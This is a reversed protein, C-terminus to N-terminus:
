YKKPMNEILKSNTQYNEQIYNNLPGFGSIKEINAKYYDAIGMLKNVDEPNDLLNLALGKLGFRGTRGVRHLYCDHDIVLRDTVPDKKMPIDANIVLGVNQNDIGRSLLSTTILVKLEGKLFLRLAKDREAEDLGSFIIYAKTGQNNLEEHAAQAFKKTNAFIIIQTEIKLKDLLKILFDVKKDRDTEVYCQKVTTLTLKEHAIERKELEKKLVTSFFTNIFNNLETNFTASIFLIQAKLNINKLAMEIVQPGNQSAFIDDAEDIAIFKVEKLAVVLKVRVEKGNQGAFKLTSGGKLLNFLTGPTTILVHGGKQISSYDGAKVLCIQTNRYVRDEKEYTILRTFVQNIQNALERTHALIIAQPSYVISPSIGTKQTPAYPLSTDISELISVLFSLTKGSGNQSQAVLAIEPKNKIVSVVTSQIKSPKTFGRQILLETLDQSVKLDKWSEAALLDESLDVYKNNM